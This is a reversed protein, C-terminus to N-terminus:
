EGRLVPLHLNNWKKMGLLIIVLLLIMMLLSTVMSIGNYTKIINWDGFVSYLMAGLNLSVVLGTTIFIMKKLRLLLFSNLVIAISTLSAPLLFLGLTKYFEIHNLYSYLFSSFISILYIVSVVKAWTSQITLSLVNKKRIFEYINEKDMSQIVEKLEQDILPAFFVYYLNFTIISPILPVFLMWSSFDSLANRDAFFHHFNYALVKDIWLVLGMMMGLMFSSYLKKDFRVSPMKGNKKLLYSFMFLSSLLPPYLIKTPWLFLSIGYIFWSIMWVSWKKAVSGYTMLLSFSTHFVCSGIMLIIIEFTLHNVFGYSSIFLTEILASVILIGPFFQLIIKEIKVTKLLYLEHGLRSYLPLCAMQSMWPICLALQLMIFVISTHFIEAQGLVPIIKSAIISILFVPFLHIVFELIKKTNPTQLKNQHALYHIQKQEINRKIAQILQHHLRIKIKNAIRREENNKFVPVVERKNSSSRLSSNNFDPSKKNM